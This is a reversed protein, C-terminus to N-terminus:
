TVVQQQGGQHPALTREHLEHPTIGIADLDPTRRLLTNAYNKLIDPRFGSISELVSLTEGTEPQVDSVIVVPARLHGMGKVHELAATDESVDHIAYDVGKELGERGLFRETADCQVCRPQTYVDLREM